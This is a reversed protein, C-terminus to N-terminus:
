LQLLVEAKMTSRVEYALHVTHCKVKILRMYKMDGLIVNIEAKYITQYVYACIGSKPFDMLSSLATCQLWDPWSKLNLSPEQEFM